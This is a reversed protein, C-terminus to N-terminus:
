VRKFNFDQNWENYRCKFVCHVHQIASTDTAIPLQEHTDVQYAGAIIGFFNFPNMRKTKSRLRFMFQKFPRQRTLMFNKLGGQLTKLKGSITKYHLADYFAETDFAVGEAIQTTTLGPQTTPFTGGGTFKEALKNNNYLPFGQRDTAETQMKLIDQTESSSLEDIAIYDEKFSLFIPMYYCKLAHVKDTELLGKTLHFEVSTFINNIRSDPFCNGNAQEAFAANEPHTELASPTGLGEDYFCVPFNTDHKVASEINFGVAIEMNHPSPYWTTRMLM